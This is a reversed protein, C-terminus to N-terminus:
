RDLRLPPGDQPHLKLSITWRDTRRTWLAFGDLLIAPAYRKCTKCHHARPPKFTECRRCWRQRQAKVGDDGDGEGDEGEWWDRPIRGPDTFCTRWYCVLLSAVLANFLYADGPRLPGPEIAHFLYQSSYALFAVLLTVGPPALRQLTTPLDM